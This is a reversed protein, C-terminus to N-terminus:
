DDEISEEDDDEEDADLPDFIELLDETVAEDARDEV